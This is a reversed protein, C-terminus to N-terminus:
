RVQLSLPWSPPLRAPCPITRSKGATHGGPVRTRASRSIAGSESAKIRRFRRLVVFSPLAGMNSDAVFFAMVLESRITRASAMTVIPGAHVTPSLGGPSQCRRDLCDGTGLVAAFEEHLKPCIDLTYTLNMVNTSIGGVDSTESRGWAMDDCCITRWWPLRCSRQILPMCQCRPRSFPVQAEQHPAGRHM